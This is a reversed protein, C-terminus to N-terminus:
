IMTYDGAIEAILLRAHNRPVLSRIHRELAAFDDDWPFLYACNSVGVAGIRSLAVRMSSATRLDTALVYVNTM